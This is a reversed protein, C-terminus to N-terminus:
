HGTLKERYFPSRERLYALQERFAVGDLMLQEDWPRTEVQPELIVRVRRGGGRGRRAGARGAGGAGRRPAPPAPRAPARRPRPPPRRTRTIRSGWTSVRGHSSCSM